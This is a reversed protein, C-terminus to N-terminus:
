DREGRWLLHLPPEEGPTGGPLPYGPITKTGPTAGPGPELIPVQLLPMGPPFGGPPEMVEQVTQMILDYGASLGWASRPM